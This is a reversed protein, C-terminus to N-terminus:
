RSFLCYYSFSDNTRTSPCYFLSLFFFLPVLSRRLGQHVLGEKDGEEGEDGGSGSGGDGGNESDEEEGDGDDDDGDPIWAYAQRVFNTSAAGVAGVLNAAELWRAYSNTTRSALLM